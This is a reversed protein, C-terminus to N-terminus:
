AAGKRLISQMLSIFRKRDADFAFRCNHPLDYYRPDIITQGDSYDRLGIECHVERVDQLVEPDLLYCLALADHIAASEPEELPQSINHAVIRQRCLKAVFRCVDNNYSEIEDAEAANIYGRHTADCPVYLVKAGCDTVIAAAEPDRWINAEASSSVNTIGYGGGMIVIEEINDVIEPAIKLAMGLNTLPGTAVLTVKEKAHKLYDVYFMVAPMDQVKAEAPELYDFDIHFSVRERKPFVPRYKEDWINLRDKYIDKVMPSSCGRYVPIDERKLLHLVRLTNDSANDVPRSGNVACIGVVDLKGSMVALIIAIADDSGTDVDMIIKRM